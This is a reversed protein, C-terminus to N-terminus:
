RKLLWGQPNAAKGCLQGAMGEGATAAGELGTSGNRGKVRGAMSSAVIAPTASTRREPHIEDPGCTRAKSALSESYKPPRGTRANLEPVQV